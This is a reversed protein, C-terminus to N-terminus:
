GAPPAPPAPPPPPPPPAGAAPPPPQPVPASGPVGAVAGSTMQGPGGPAIGEGGAALLHFYIVAAALASLPQFIVSTILSAIIGGVVNDAIALTLATLIIGVVFAALFLLVLVGFVQWGNGRVLERSRGLAAVAGPREIVVVPGVVAWWTLLILGPVILLILGFVIGLGALVGAVILPLIVPTVSRFLEGLSADQSGDQADRVAQVVVGQFWFGAVFGILASILSAFIGGSERVVGDIIAVPVFIILVAPILVGVLKGYTEFVGSFVRGVDINSPM